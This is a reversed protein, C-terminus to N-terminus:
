LQERQRSRIQTLDKQDISSSRIELEAILQGNQCIEFKGRTTTWYGKNHYLVDRGQFIVKIPLELEAYSHFTASMYKLMMGIGQLPVKGFIHACATGFQRCGEIILLGPVHDLPHEYFYPHTPSAYINGIFFNEKELGEVKELIDALKKKEEESISFAKHQRLLANLSYIEEEVEAINARVVYENEHLLYHNNFYRLEQKNLKLKEVEEVSVNGTMGQYVYVPSSYDSNNNKSYFNLVYNYEEETLSSRMNNEFFDADITRCLIRRLNYIQVNEKNSKHVYKQDILQPKLVDAFITAPTKETPTRPAASEEEIDASLKVRHDLRGLYEINGDPLYRALDGTKYLRSTPDDNFPNPIFKETTLDPRNLYGRALGDGSIHLEGPIGIPVTQDNQDLIYIQTNAIPRGISITNSVQAKTSWITTETLGYWNWLAQGKELLQTALESPLYEGGCLIKLQHSSEWGTAILLRWTAPTAQMITIGEHNLKELLKKGDTVEERNALVIKAGVILPLYIELAAIDFSLTTIALLTDASTLGPQKQQSTLFNLLSSHNIQVGTSSSTYIVYALNDPGVGSSLNEVSLQLLTQAEDDLCVVQAATKPLGDILSSQSLLVSVQADELAFRAAPYAPDLPVYAGGAKLIGLLGIVMSFSREVCIGVLVEPKVGLTQLYHALQNAQSNLERYTLQQDEFVVAVADPTKEVQEEFLDVITKDRPYDTTTDNWSLLQQQERDTLLPLAQIPQLPNAVIGELLTQFHGVMRTITAAEFLDTNYKFTGVLSNKVEMMELSLDFQCEQQAMDFPELELEGLNVRTGTDGPTFLDMVEGVPQPKQLVFNVQFLPSRSPDREPQLREVLLPFPYDQHDLAGLVTQRVQELFAKFTFSGQLQARLVVPNAFYGAIDTFENQNRGTTASGVLIDEQGTYRYLLIQYAALIVMYLSANETQALEKLPQTLTEAIKIHVSAGRYTQVPPRPHDTPLNLVPLAGALQQQWYAWLREGKTSALMEKQWHVYDAYTHKLPPLSPQNGTKITPYLMGLEKILMWLSWSDFVIHHISLLLIHDQQTRTFLNVRLVPGHSLDFPKHYAKVVRKNLEEWSDNSADIQEFRVIQYQHVKQFPEGDNLTFTTRLCPHRNILAQFTNQLAPVDIISRIRLSFGINYAVSEPALQYLFWLAQQGHSLPYVEPKEPSQPKSATEILPADEEHQPKNIFRPKLKDKQVVMEENHAVPVTTITTAAESSAQYYEYLNDQYESCLFKALSTISAEESFLTPTIEFHYIENLRNALMMFGVSEFGYKDLEENLDIKSEDIKLIASTTSLLDKQVKELITSTNSELLPHLKAIKSQEGVVKSELAPVWYRERAFPYTPLSIRQPKQNPYLLQWDIEIGSVWLQALKPFDKKDIVVKMFAEGAEGEILLDSQTKNTKVNSRYFNDIETQGQAYQTLKERLEDLNDVVMALREAMAERGVQLTYALEALSFNSKQNKLATSEGAQSQSNDCLYQAMAALSPYESFLAPTISVLYKNNLRLSLETLSVTDFGYESFAEDLDIDNDSVKLIESVIKLLDQQIKERLDAEEEVNMLTSTPKLFALINNIYAHLRDENKASLVILQDGQPAIEAEGVPPEYEEVILHANAGGAGFSSIAALRPYRKQEGNTKIVPQKWETLTQQVYFPSEKFNINPNLRESHLSPVLQQYKMQLLVKTLAAIGAASELHGINSKVSGISCYQTEKTKTKYAKMLGAIEIPDGLSTGTGHAEVYSITRPDIQAKNLATVILDTQANPNPVTYGSTKGGANISSGKIVGYITDKDKIAQQLPKLLIAGIGEGDVFGDAGEGFSKCRDDSALMKQYCLRYYHMPHLILNVGGAIAIQCEGKKLSDCALHIATLSSSCATDIALSPGTFDFYYSVRNAISWYASRAATLHGKATAEAGLWEYNNNMVGVFTGVQHNLKALTQRTYGADEFLAWVTELFLREQPDTVQAYPPSINFFLPDFKDVDAIFGGWKSYIQNIQSNRGNPDYYEQWNWRDAPIESICNTGNKLNNWFAELTNAQPYRGTVGIIAIEQDSIQNKLKEILQVLFKRKNDM